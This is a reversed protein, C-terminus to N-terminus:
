IRVNHKDHVRSRGAIKLSRHLPISSSSLEQSAGGSSHREPEEPHPVDSSHAVSSFQAQIRYVSTAWGDDM